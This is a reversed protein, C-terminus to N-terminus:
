TGADSSKTAHSEENKKRKHVSILDDTNLLVTPLLVNYPETIVGLGM